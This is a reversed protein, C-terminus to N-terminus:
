RANGKPFLVRDPEANLNELLRKILRSKVSGAQKPHVLYRLIAELWTNDNTRFLVTPRARVELEDVPTQSLLERYIKVRQKMTDGIEELAVKEMTHAVFELDSEYGISFTIENWVYPFVPWTYNYVVSSLVQSNPVRIIRGTPHDTSIYGGGFEWLTTDLYGVDIVDGTADGIRIRDGVRYPARVLIYIWGIFSTIPIQLAFGLILSILGLSLAATYWNAFLITIVVFTILLAVLVRQIRGLNFRSVPDVTRKILYVESAKALGLIFLVFMGSKLLKQILQITEGAGSGFRFTIAYNILAFVLLLIAYGTLWAKDETRAPVSEHQRSPDVQKLADKVERQKSLEKADAKADASASQFPQDTDIKTVM